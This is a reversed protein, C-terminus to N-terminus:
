DCLYTSSPLLDWVNEYEDDSDQINSDPIRILLHDRVGQVKFLTFEWPFSEVASCAVTSSTRVFIERLDYSLLRSLQVMSKASAYMDYLRNGAELMEEDKGDALHDLSHRVRRLVGQVRNGSRPHAYARQRSLGECLERLTEYRATNANLETLGVYGRAKMSADIQENTPAKRNLVQSWKWGAAATLDDPLRTLYEIAIPYPVAINTPGYPEPPGVDYGRLLDLTAMKPTQVGRGTAGRSHLNTLKRFLVQRQMSSLYSISRLISDVGTELLLDRPDQITPYLIGGLMRPLCWEQDKRSLPHCERFARIIIDRMTVDIDNCWDLSQSLPGCRGVWAPTDQSEDPGPVTLLRVKITDQFAIYKRVLFTKYRLDWHADGRSHRPPLYAWDEALQVTTFSIGNKGPSMVWSFCEWALKSYLLPLSCFLRVYDDGIISTLGNWNHMIPPTDTGYLEKLREITLDPRKWERQEPPLDAHRFLFEREEAYAVMDDLILNQLTMAIFSFGEGMMVGTVHDAEPLCFGKDGERPYLFQHPSLLLKCAGWVVPPVSWSGHHLARLYGELVERHVELSTSDTCQSVDASVSPHRLWHNPFGGLRKIMDWLKNGSKFGISVRPEHATLNDQIWHRGALSFMAYSWPPITLARAKWGPEPLVVVRSAMPTKGIVLWDSPDLTQGECPWFPLGPAVSRNAEVYGERLMELLCLTVLLSGGMPSLLTAQLDKIDVVPSMGQSMYWQLIGQPRDPPVVLRQGTIDFVERGSLAFLEDPFRNGLWRNFAEVLMASKGGEEIM